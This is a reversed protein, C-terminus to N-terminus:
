CPKNAVKSSELLSSPLFVSRKQHLFRNEKELMEQAKYIGKEFMMMARDDDNIM